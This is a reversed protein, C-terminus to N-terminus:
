LAQEWVVNGGVRIVIKKFGRARAASLLRNASKLEEIKGEDAKTRWSIEFVTKQPGTAQASLTFHHRRQGEHFNKVFNVRDVEDSSPAGGHPQHAIAPAVRTAAHHQQQHQPAVSGVQANRAATGEQVLGYVGGVFAVIFVASIILSKRTDNGHHGHHGHDDHGHAM